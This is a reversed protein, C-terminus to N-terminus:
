RPRSVYAFLFKGMKLACSLFQNDAYTLLLRTWSLIVRVM